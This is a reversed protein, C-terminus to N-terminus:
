LVVLILTNENLAGTPTGNKTKLERFSGLIYPVDKNVFRHKILEPKRVTKSQSIEKNIGYITSGRITLKDEAIILQLKKYKTNYLVVYKADIIHVPHISELGLEDFNEMYKVKSVLKFKDVPKKIRTKSTGVINSFTNVVNDVIDKYKNFDAKSINDYGEDSEKLENLLGTFYEAIEQGEKKKIKYEKIFKKWDKKYFNGTAVCNDIYSEVDDIYTDVNNKKVTPKQIVTIAKKAERVGAYEILELLQSHIKNDIYDSKPYGRKIMRCLAGLTAKFLTKPIEDLNDVLILNPMYEAVYDLTYQKLEEHNANYNYWNLVKIFESQSYEKNEFTPEDGWIMGQITKKKSTTM